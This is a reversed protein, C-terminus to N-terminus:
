NARIAWLLEYNSSYVLIQHSFNAVLINFGGAKEVVTGCSIEEEMAKTKRIHSESVEWLANDGIVVVCEQFLHISRMPGVIIRWQEASNQMMVLEEGDAYYITNHVRAFPFIPDSVKIPQSSLPNLYQISSNLTMLSLSGPEISFAPEVVIQMNKGEYGNIELNKRLSVYVFKRFLLVGITNIHIEEPHEVFQL